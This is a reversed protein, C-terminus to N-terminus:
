SPYFAKLFEGELLTFKALVLKVVVMLTVRFGRKAALPRMTSFHGLALAFLSFLQNAM